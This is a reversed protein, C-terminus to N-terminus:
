SNKFGFLDGNSYYDFILSLRKEDKFAYRLNIIRKCQNKIIDEYTRFERLISDLM